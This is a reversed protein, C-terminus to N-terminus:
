DNGLREAAGWVTAVPEDLPVSVYWSQGPERLARAKGFREKSTDACVRVPEQGSGPRYFWLCGTPLAVDAGLPISRPGSDSTMDYTFVLKVSQEAATGESPSALEIEDEPATPTPQDAFGCYVLGLPLLSAAAAAGATRIWRPAHVTSKGSILMRFRRELAKPSRSGAAGSAFAPTQPTPPNSLLEVVRLLSKGYDDPACQLASAGLADCSAEEAARLERRAWWAVPNWWFVSCALWEIWRVFHDRRRVHALEHALMARLAQRDPTAPLFSPVVIRVRGGAWCVMPSVRATTINVAPVRALGLRRGIGAAEHRLEPPAPQSTRVLWHRFRLVRFLTWGLLLATGVLWMIVVGAKAEETMRVAFPTRTRQDDADAAGVAGPVAIDAADVANEALTADATPTALGLERPLVPISVVAPLLLAVLVVLWFQSHLGPSGCAEAGRAGLRGARGIGVVQSRRDSACVDVM